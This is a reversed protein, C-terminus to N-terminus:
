KMRRRRLWGLAAVVGTWAFLMTGPEPIPTYDITLLPDVLDNANRGFDDRPDLVFGKNEWTGDVWNQIMSQVDWTGGTGMLLNDTDVIESGMASEIDPASTNLGTQLTGGWDHGQGTATNWNVAYSGAGNDASGWRDGWTGTGEEWLPTGAPTDIRRVHVGINDYDDSYWTEDCSFSASNITAGALASLDAYYLPYFVGAASNPGGIMDSPQGGTNAPWANDRYVSTHLSSAETFDIVLVDASAWASVVFILAATWVLVKMM